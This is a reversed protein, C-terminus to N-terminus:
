YENKGGKFITIVCYEQDNKEYLDKQCEVLRM